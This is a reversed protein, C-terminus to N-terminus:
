YTISASQLGYQQQVTEAMRRAMVCANLEMRPITNAATSAVKAKALAQRVIVHGDAYEHRLYVVAGFAESSADSFAHIQTNVPEVDEPQVCRPVRLASLKPLVKVWKAWRKLLGDPLKDNWGGSTRYTDRLILKAIIVVPIILGLPDFISAVERLMDKQTVVKGPARIAVLFADPGCQWILGLIRESPMPDYHVDLAPHANQEGAFTEMVDRSNSCWQKLPFGGRALLSQMRLSQAVAEEETDFSDLYNDAYFRDRVKGVLDPFEEAHDEAIRRLVFTAISPSCVAGFILRDMQYMRPPVTQGYPLWWFRLVSSDEAAVEIQLFMKEVDGSVAYKKKRFHALTESLRALNDPGQYLRQNLSPGGYEENAHFVPRVRGPKNINKVGHHTLFNNRGVPTEALEQPTVEHAFGSSLYGDFERAYQRYYDDNRAFISQLQQFRRLAARSNDPLDPQGPRWPLGIRYREGTFTVSERFMGIAAVDEKSIPLALNPTTGFNENNLFGKFLAALDVEPCSEQEVDVATEERSIAAIIRRGSVNGDLPGLVTWGLETQVAIPADPRNFPARISDLVAHASPVDTGIIMTIRVSDSSPAQIRRLHPWEEKIAEWDVAPRTIPCYPLLEIKELDFVARGDVSSLRFNVEGTRYKDTPHITQVTSWKPTISMGHHEAVSRDLMTAQACTDVLARELTTAKESIVLVDIVPQSNYDKGEFALACMARGDPGVGVPPVIPGGVAGMEEEEEVVVPLVSVVAPTAVHAPVRRPPRSAVQPQDGDGTRPAFAVFSAGHVSPHHWFKCRDIPCRRMWACIQRFSHGRLCKFCRKKAAVLDLREQPTLLRYRVCVNPDHDEGCMVCSFDVNAPQRDNPRGGRGQQRSQQHSPPAGAAPAASIHSTRVPAAGAAAPAQQARGAPAAGRSAPAPQRRVEEVWVTPPQNRTPRPAVASDTSSVSEAYGASAAPAQIVNVTRTPNNRRSGGRHAPPLSSDLPPPSPDDLNNVISESEFVEGMWEAFDALTLDDGRNTFVIQAWDSKLRPYLKGVLKHLLEDNYLMSNLGNDRLTGITGSLDSSFKSLAAFDGERLSPMEELRRLCARRVRHTGGYRLRLQRVCEEYSAANKFHADMAQLVEAGMYSKLHHFRERNDTTNNVVVITFMEWFTTWDAPDGNFKPVKLRLPPNYNTVPPTPVHGYVRADSREREVHAPPAGSAPSRNARPNRRPPPNEPEWGGEGYDPDDDPDGGPGGPGGGARQARPEERQRQERPPNLPPRRNRQRGEYRPDPLRCSPPTTESSESPYGTRGSSSAKADRRRQGGMFRPNMNFFREDNRRAEAAAPPPPPEESVTVQRRTRPPTREGGSSSTSTSLEVVRAAGTRRPHYSYDAPEPLRRQATERLLRMLLRQLAIDEEDEAKAAAAPPTRAAQQPTRRVLEYGGGVEPEEEEEVIDPRRTPTPTRRPPSPGPRRRRMWRNESSASGEADSNGHVYAGSSAASQRNRASDAAESTRPRTSTPMNPGMSQFEEHASMEAEVFVGSCLNSQQSPVASPASGRRRWDQAGTSSAAPNPHSQCSSVIDENQRRQEQVWQRQQQQEREAAAKIESLQLLVATIEPHAASGRPRVSRLHRFYEEDTMQKERPSEFRSYEGRLIRMQERSLEPVSTPAPAELHGSAESNAHMNRRLQQLQQRDLVREDVPQASGERARLRANDEELQRIREADLRRREEEESRRLARQRRRESVAISSDDLWDSVYSLTSPAYAGGGAGTPPLSSFDEDLPIEESSVCPRVRISSTATAASSAARGYDRTPIDDIGAIDEYRPPLDSENRTRVPRLQEAEEMVQDINGQRGVQRDMFEHIAREDAYEDAYENMGDAGQSDTDELEEDFLGGALALNERWGGTRLREEDYQEEEELREMEELLEPSLVLSPEAGRQHPLNSRCEREELAHLGDQSGDDYWDLLDPSPTFYPSEGGEEEDAWENVLHSVPVVTETSDETDEGDMEATPDSTAEEGEQGRRRRNTDMIQATEESMVTM